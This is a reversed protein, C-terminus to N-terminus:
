PRISASVSTRASIRSRISSHTATARASPTGIAPASSCYGAAILSPTHAQWMARPSLGLDLRLVSRALTRRHRDLIDFDPEPLREEVIRRPAALKEDLALGVARVLAVVLVIVVGFFATTPRLGSASRFSGYSM